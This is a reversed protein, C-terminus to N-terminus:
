RSFARQSTLVTSRGRWRWSPVRREQGQLGTSSCILYDGRKSSANSQSFLSTFSIPLHARPLLLSLLPDFSSTTTISKHSVVDDLTVPRYKEVRRSRPFTDSQRLPHFSPLHLEGLSTRTRLQQFPLQKRRGKATELLLSPTRLPLLKPSPHDLPLPLWLPRPLQKRLRSFFSFSPSLHARRSSIWSATM